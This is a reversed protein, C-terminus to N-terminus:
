HDFRAPFFLELFFRHNLVALITVELCKARLRIKTTIKMQFYGQIPPEFIYYQEYSCTEEPDSFNM